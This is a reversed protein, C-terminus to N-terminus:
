ASRPNWSQGSRVLANLITLLRRAAAILAAKPAMGKDLLRQRFAALKPNYRGASLAAMYLASRVQRRGGWITRKGRMKGSDRNLPALGVLAAIKKHEITGLEPLEAILTVATKDGVGPVSTLRAALEAWAPHAAIAQATRAELGAIEKALWRLHRKLDRQLEKDAVQELRRTEAGHMAMLQRRRAVLASLRGRAADPLHRGTPRLREGYLALVAADIRDTKALRGLSKAFDRVQRPNVVAVAFGSEALLDACAREYGGSAELVVLAPEAAGLEAILRWLGSRTHPVGFARGEPLVHVDLRDKSVDIGVFRLAESLRRM